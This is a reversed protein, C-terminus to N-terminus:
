QFRLGSFFPEIPDTRNAKGPVDAEPDAYVVAHFVQTGRSYWIGRMTVASGDRRKGQASVVVL